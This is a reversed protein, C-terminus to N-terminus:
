ICIDPGSYGSITDIVDTALHRLMLHMGYVFSPFNDSTCFIVSIGGSVESSIKTAKTKHFAAKEQDWACVCVCM